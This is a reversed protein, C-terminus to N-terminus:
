ILGHCVFQIHSGSIAMFTCRGGGSWLLFRTLGSPRVIRELIPTLHMDERHRQVANKGSSYDWYGLSAYGM